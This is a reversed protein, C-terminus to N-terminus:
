FPEEDYLSDKTGSAVSMKFLSVRWSLPIEQFSGPMEREEGDPFM